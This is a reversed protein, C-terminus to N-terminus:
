LTTGILHKYGNLFQNATMAKKGELQLSIVEIVGQGTAIYLRNSEAIITGPAASQTTVAPSIILLKLRKGQLETWIGPWPSLGRFLNYITAASTHWQIQGDDRSVLTCFTAAAHNQPEPRIDGNVWRPITKLLLASGRPTIKTTLSDNTDDPDIAIIETALIPGHDMKDDMLMVTVATETDGNILASRIPSAGRFSPLKSPHLNLTGYKPISLLEPPIILGYHFVLFLDAPPISAITEPSKLTPPQIVPINHTRGLEKVPAPAIERSRGIPRDPQTVIAKFTFLGSDILPALVDAAFQDTGFFTISITTDNVKMYKSLYAM